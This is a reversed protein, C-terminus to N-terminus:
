RVKLSHREPSISRLRRPDVVRHDGHGQLAAARVRDEAHEHAVDALQQQGLAVRDHVEVQVAAQDVEGAQAGGEPAPAVVEAQHGHRLPEAEERGVVDGGLQGAGVGVPDQQHGLPAPGRQVLAGRLQHGDGPPNV